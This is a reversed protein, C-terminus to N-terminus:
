PLQCGSISCAGGGVGTDDPTTITSSHCTALVATKVDLRVRRLAPKEYVRKEDM